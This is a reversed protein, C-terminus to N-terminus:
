LIATESSVIIGKCIPCTTIKKLCDTCVCVHTCPKIIINKPKLKCLVCNLPHVKNDKCMLKNLLNIVIDLNDRLKNPTLFETKIKLCLTMPDIQTMIYMNEYPVHYYSKGYYPERTLADYGRITLDSKQYWQTNSWWITYTNDKKNYELQLYKEGSLLKCDGFKHRNEYVIDCIQQLTETTYLIADAVLYHYFTLREYLFDFRKGNEIILKIDHVNHKRLANVLVSFTEQQDKPITNSNGM